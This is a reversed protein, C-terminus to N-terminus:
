METCRDRACQEPKNSRPLGNLRVAHWLFRCIRRRPEELLSSPYDYLLRFVHNNPRSLCKKSKSRRTSLHRRPNELPIKWRSLIVRANKTEFFFVDMKWSVISNSLFDRLSRRKKGKRGGGLFFIPILSVRRPHSSSDFLPANSSSSSTPRECVRAVRHM